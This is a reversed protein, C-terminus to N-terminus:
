TVINCTKQTRVHPGILKLLGHRQSMFPQLKKVKCLNKYCKNVTM